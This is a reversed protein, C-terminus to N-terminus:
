VFFHIHRFGSLDMDVRVQDDVLTKLCESLSRVNAARGRGRWNRLYEGVDSFEKDNISLHFM